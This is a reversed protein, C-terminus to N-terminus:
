SSNGINSHEGSVQLGLALLLQRPKLAASLRNKAIFRMISYILSVQFGRCLGAIGDSKLTKRCVDVM